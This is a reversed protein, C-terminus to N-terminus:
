KESWAKYEKIARYIKEAIAQRNRGKKLTKRDKRNSIFGAEILISPMRAGKLVYFGAQKIGRNKQFFKGMNRSIFACFEASENMYENLKMSWLISNVDSKYIPKEEMEIVANETNAVMQAEDDSATDSLFYVEFGRTSKRYSANTHISIFLDAGARNAILTRTALPLFIDARRTLIANFAPNKRLLKYLRQAINFVIDKERTGDLAVAGPDKGGHGPDIVITKVRRKTKKFPTRIQAPKVTTLKRKPRKGFDFISLKKEKFNWSVRSSVFGQFSKTLILELPIWSKGEFIMPSKKLTRPRRRIYLKKSNLFLRLDEKKENILRICKKDPLWEVRLGFFNALDSTKLYGMGDKLMLSTSGAPKENEFIKVTVIKASAFAFTVFYYLLLIIFHCTLLCDKKKSTEIIM